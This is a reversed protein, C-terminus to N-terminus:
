RWQMICLHTYGKNKNKNKQVSYGKVRAAYSNNILINDCCLIKYM